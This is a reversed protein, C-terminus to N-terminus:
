VVPVGGGNAHMAAPISHPAPQSDATLVATLLGLPSPSAFEIRLEAQGAPAHIITAEAPLYPPHQENVLAIVAALEAAAARTGEPTIIVDRFLVHVGPSTDGFAAVRFAYQSALAALTALLRSDVAGARLQAADQVTFRIGSNKLLQAGASKRAALDARLASEYGAPGGPETARVAVRANGSGFIAIVAPAYTSALQSDASSSTVVVSAGHPDAAAGRLPMLRGATVGQAQLAACMAPDCAIIAGANVQGAIWAAAQAQAVAAPSPPLPQRGPTRAAPSGTAPARVAPAATGTFLETFQLTMVAIVALALVLAALHWRPTTRRSAPGGSRLSAGHPGFGLSRLRWAVWVQITTVLVRGWSPERPVPAAPRSANLVTGPPVAHRTHEDLNVGEVAADCEACGDRCACYSAAMVSIAQNAASPNCM